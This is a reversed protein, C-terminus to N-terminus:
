KSLQRLVKMAREADKLPVFIHDHYNAAVMNCSINEEALAKSVAATLGVADLSSHVNLTIWSFIGNYPLGYSDAVSRKLIVTLGEAERFSGLIDDSNIEKEGSVTCFVYEGKNRTPTLAKLITKLDTEGQM